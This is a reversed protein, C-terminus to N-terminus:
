QSRAAQAEVAREIRDLRPKWPDAKVIAAADPTSMMLESKAADYRPWSPLGARNPDGTRAFAAIYGMFMDAMSRDRATAAAGYRVETERSM